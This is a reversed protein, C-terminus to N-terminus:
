APGLDSHSGILAGCWTCTLHSVALLVIQSCSCASLTILGPFYIGVFAHRDSTKGNGLGYFRKITIAGVSFPTTRNRKCVETSHSVSSVLVNPVHITSCSLRPLKRLNRGGGWFMENNETIALSARSPVAILFQINECAIRSEQTKVSQGM